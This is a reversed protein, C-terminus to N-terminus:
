QCNYLHIGVHDGTGIGLAAFANAARNARAEVEAYTFRDVAAGQRGCVLAEKEPVADVVAEFMDAIQFEM